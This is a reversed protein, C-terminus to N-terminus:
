SAGASVPCFLLVSALHFPSGSPLVPSSHLHASQSISYPRFNEGRCSAPTRRGTPSVPADCGSTRWCAWTSWRTAAASKRLSCRPNSTTPSSAASTTPNRCPAVAPVLANADAPPPPPSAELHQSRVKSALNEVLSIMSNKFLTGATLPRKTVETISLKGEPWM